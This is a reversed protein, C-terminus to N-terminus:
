KIPCVGNSCEDSGLIDEESVEVDGTIPRVTASLANYQEETIEEYPAQQFGHESHLLFSVTKVGENYNKALWAKIEPLEEKRYYVTCSVSNDSWEAQLRKVYELQQVATLDKACVTGEPYSCPFSVVVTNKDDTGDFNRQYEVPYGHDKCVQVLDANAAMRIRRIFFRSYGPHVGPTVGALLSLTGSPKVTTLKISPSYGHKASYEQDYLRLVNYADKLWGRQEETAMLYGTIGIGMRMNKHVIEETEPSHSPLALSHKNIRYLYTSVRVLEAYSTINPLFIEALCCTEHNALGQEACQGTVVGNFCGLNRLPETFCYVTEAIGAPIVDVVTVFRSADRNPDVNSLDLRHTRMGLDRLKAVAAASLMLRHSERCDYLRTGGNGDPMKREGAPHMRSVKSQVGCTTLMLQTDLLFQKDVSSVQLNGDETLTGDGDSVGAFWQLRQDLCMHSPVYTKPEPTRTLNVMVRHEDSFGAKGDLLNVLNRKEGYLWIESRGESGDAAYLGQTYLSYEASAGQEIAPLEHKLLKDGKSLDVTNVREEKHYFGYGDVTVWKHNGTCRVTRGNSLTVDYVPQNHGTVRPTTTSWEFGNWVDVEKGVLSQIPFQGFRTLIPTDGTVCPNFGEVEPDPFWFEGLRGVKRALDLNIFGYPEGDGNYGDWIKEPLKSFDNCVVSNNSMARWNPIGTPKGDKGVWTKAELFEMDDADGIAIQASRRVNGSVVIYGIINMIDLADISRLQKGARSNLLKSIENIGWCLEEPGSAVGGFGKIPAGKSRVCVTSYTFGKGSYFHAKLTKELLKIWGERSDPVIFDADNTDLRVVKARKVKPLKYVNERQINYGVGSGLMLADMTWTFPRVPGNVTVFACNQLSFMGLRDVTKTGLQWWFRGAVSGKLTMFIEKLEREEELTFGVQLQTRCAKIARDVTQEFEETPSNPSDKLRRAYTRKFTIFGVEGWPTAHKM